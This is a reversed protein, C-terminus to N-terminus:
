GRESLVIVVDGNELEQEEEVVLYQEQAQQKVVHYSYRQGLQALFDEQRIPTDREIGWWDAIVEYEQGRRRLGIEYSSGTYIVLEAVEKDAYGHVTLNRGEQFQYRLDRLAQLLPERERIQTRIRLFAVHM